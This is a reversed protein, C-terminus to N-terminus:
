TVNNKGVGVWTSVGYAWWDRVKVPLTDNTFMLGNTEGAVEFIEPMPHGGGAMVSAYAMHIVLHLRPDVLYAWDNADTWEPVAVPIPRPDGARSNGYPNSEQATGAANPKGVDGAGYGFLTLATDFLDIPVLCYTPWLGLRSATGPITQSWIRKRAASWGAADLAATAVNGHNSHFLATSDEAMTPGVGANATFIGAIAASRTRVASKVMERPIAQLRQIDSRRFAELTIGVYHGRKVFAMSERTDGVLGETYAAGEAVTPLNGMGDVMILQVDHTTGDHATVMVLPEYWRYTAMNDYHMRIVKNLANVVMGALTSTSAAALQSYAPNFMGYWESDGTIAQYLERISRMSPSPTAAKQWGFAWDLAAQVRDEATEMQGLAGIPRMGRVLSREAVAAEAARQAEILEELRGERGTGPIPPGEQTDTYGKQTDV